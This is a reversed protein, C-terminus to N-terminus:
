ATESKKVLDTFFTLFPLCIGGQILLVPRILSLHNRKFLKLLDVRLNKSPQVYWVCMNIIRQYLSLSIRFIHICVDFSIERKRSTNKQVAPVMLIKRVAIMDNITVMHLFVGHKALQLSKLLLIKKLLM